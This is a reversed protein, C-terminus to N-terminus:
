YYYHSYSSYNEKCRNKNSDKSYLNHCFSDGLIRKSIKEATAQFKLPWIEKATFDLSSNQLWNQMRNELM